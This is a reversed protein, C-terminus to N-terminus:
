QNSVGDNLPHMEMDCNRIRLIKSERVSSNNSVGHSLPKQTFYCDGHHMYVPTQLCQPGQDTGVVDQLTQSKRQAFPGIPLVQESNDFYEM